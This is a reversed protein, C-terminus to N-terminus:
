HEYERRVQAETEPERPMVTQNCSSNPAPRMRPRPGVRPTSTKVLDNTPLDVPHATKQDAPPDAGRAQADPRDMVLDMQRVAWKAAARAAPLAALHPVM